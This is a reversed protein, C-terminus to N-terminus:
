PHVHFIVVAVYAATLFAFIGGNILVERISRWSEDKTIMDFNCTRCLWYTPKNKREYVALDEFVKYEGCVTCPCDPIPEAKAPQPTPAYFPSNEFAIPANQLSLQNFLWQQQASIPDYFYNGNLLQGLGLPDNPNM